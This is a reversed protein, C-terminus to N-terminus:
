IILRCWVRAFMPTPRPMASSIPALQRYHAAPEAISRTTGTAARVPGAQDDEGDHGVLPLV